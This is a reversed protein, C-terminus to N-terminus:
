GDVDGSHGVIKALIAPDLFDGSSRDSAALKAAYPDDQHMPHQEDSSEDIGSPKDIETVTVRDSGITLTLEEAGQTEVRPLRGDPGVVGSSLVKGTKDKIAFAKGTWGLDEALADSGAPAFRLSHPVDLGVPEFDPFAHGMSGGGVMSKVGAKVTIKGPCQATFNGGEITISAGGSVALVLKKAAAINV